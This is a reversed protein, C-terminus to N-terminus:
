PNLEAAMTTDSSNGVEPVVRGMINPDKVVWGSRMTAFDIPVIETNIGV